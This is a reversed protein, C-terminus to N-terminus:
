YLDMDCITSRLREHFSFKYVILKTDSLGEDCSSHHQFGGGFEHQSFQNVQDMFPGLLTKCHVMLACPVVVVSGLLLSIYSM